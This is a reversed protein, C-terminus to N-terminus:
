LLNGGGIAIRTIAKLIKKEKFQRQFHHRAGM